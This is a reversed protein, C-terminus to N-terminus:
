WANYNGQFFTAYEYPIIKKDPDLPPLYFVHYKDNLEDEHFTIRIETPIEVEGVESVADRASDWSKILRNRFDEDHGAKTLAASFAAVGNEPNWEKKVPM